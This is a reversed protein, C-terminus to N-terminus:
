EFLSMQSVRQAAIECYKESIDIGISRRGLERAAALTTGSGMFPDLIVDTDQTCLDVNWRMWGIPKPCPHGTEKQATETSSIATHKAGLHLVPNKGYILVHAMNQFGWRNRGSGSPLYVGSLVSPRPLDWAMTGACWVCGRKGTEVLSDIVPVISSVFNEYTDAYEDYSGKALYGRTENASGHSGLNVGYPPDTIFVDWDVGPVIEACDGHYITVMNDQYYPEIM